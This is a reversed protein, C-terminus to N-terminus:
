GGDAPDALGGFDEHVYREQWRRLIGVDVGTDVRDFEDWDVASLDEALELVTRHIAWRMQYAQRPDLKPEDRERLLRWFEDQPDPGQREYVVGARGEIWACAEWWELAEWEQVLAVVDYTRDEAFCYVEQTDPYVVASKHSDEHVPCHIKQPRHSAVSIGRESLLDYISVLERAARIRDIVAM